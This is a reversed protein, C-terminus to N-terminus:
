RFLRPAFDARYVLTKDRARRRLVADNAAEYATVDSPRNYL